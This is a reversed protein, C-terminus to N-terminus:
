NCDKGHSTDEETGTMDNKKRCLFIALPRLGSMGMDILNEVISQLEVFALWAAIFVRPTNSINTEFLDQPIVKSLLNFAILLVIYGFIKTQSKKWMTQSTILKDRIALYLGYLLSADLNREQLVRKAQMGYATLTDLVILGLLAILPMNVEGILFTFATIFLSAVLKIQWCSTFTEWLKQLDM